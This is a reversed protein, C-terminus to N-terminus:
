RTYHLRPPYLDRLNAAEQQLRQQYLGLYFRAVSSGSGIPKSQDLMDAEVSQAPVRAADIGVILRAIAGYTILDVTTAPLGTVTEFIDTGSSLVTPAKAYIVQVTRGPDIGDFINISKGYAFSTTNATKDIDYRRVNLWEKTSGLTKWKVNLVYDVAAPLQYTTVASNFSFTYTGVGFLNPYVAQITDNIAQKVMFRPYTPAIVVKTQNAATAATTGRFARGWPALYVQKTLNDTRDVYMLEDGVEILGRGMQATENVVFDTATTTAIGGVQNVWTATEQQSGYNQIQGLVREVLANFTTTM